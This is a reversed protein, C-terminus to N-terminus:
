FCFFMKWVIKTLEANNWKLYHWLKSPIQESKPLKGLKTSDLSSTWLWDQRKSWPSKSSSHVLLVLGLHPWKNDLSKEHINMLMGLQAEISNCKAISFRFIYIMRFCSYKRFLCFIGILIELIKELPWAKIVATILNSRKLNLIGALVSINNKKFALWRIM